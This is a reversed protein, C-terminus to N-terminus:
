QPPRRLTPPEPKPPPATQEETRIREFEGTGAGYQRAPLAAIARRLGELRAAREPLPSNVAATDPQLREIYRALAAPDYGARAMAEAAIRDAELEYDRLPATYALPLAATNGHIGDASGM